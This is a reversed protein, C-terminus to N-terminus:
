YRLIELQKETYQGKKKWTTVTAKKSFSAEAAAMFYRGNQASCFYDKRENFVPFASVLLRLFATWLIGHDKTKYLRLRLRVRQLGTIDKKTESLVSTIIDSGFRV